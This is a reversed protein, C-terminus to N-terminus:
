VDIEVASVMVVDDADVGRLQDLIYHLDAQQAIEEEIKPREEPSAQKLKTCYYIMKYNDRLTKIVTSTPSDSCFSLHVRALM